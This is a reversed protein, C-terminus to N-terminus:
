GASGSGKQDYIGFDGLVMYKRHGSLGYEGIILIVFQKKWFLYLPFISSLRFTGIRKHGKQAINWSVNHIRLNVPLSM